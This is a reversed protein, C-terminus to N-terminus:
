ESNRKYFDLLRRIIEDFSEEKTGIEALRRRTERSVKVTTSDELDRGM